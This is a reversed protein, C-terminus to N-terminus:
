KTFRLTNGAGEYIMELNGTDLKTVEYWLDGASKDVVKLYLKGDEVVPVAGKPVDASKYFQYSSTGMNGTHYYSILTDPTFEERFNEDDLSRWKGIIGTKLQEMNKLDYTQLNQQMNKKGNWYFYGLILVIALLILIIYNKKM